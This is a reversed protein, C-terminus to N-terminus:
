GRKKPRWRPVSAGLREEALGKERLEHLAKLTRHVNVGQDSSTHCSDYGIRRWQCRAAIGAAALGRRHKALIELVTAADPTM